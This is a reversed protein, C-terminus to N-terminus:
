ARIILNNLQMANVYKVDKAMGCIMRIGINATRDEPNQIDIWKKPDFAKCNDRVRIIWEGEKQVVRIKADHKKGSESLGYQVVNKAMEEVCLPILLRPKPTTEHAKMFGDLEGAATMVEDITRFSREYVNEEPVGFNEPLFLLYNVLLMNLGYLPLGFAYIRM